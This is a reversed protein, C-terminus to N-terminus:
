ENSLRLPPAALTRLCQDRFEFFARDAAQQATLTSAGYRLAQQVQADAALGTRELLGLVSKLRPDDKLRAEVEPQPKTADAQETHQWLIQWDNNPAQTVFQTKVSVQRLDGGPQVRTIRFARRNAAVTERIATRIAQDNDPKNAKATEGLLEQLQTQVQKQLLEGILTVVDPAKAQTDSRIVFEATGQFEVPTELAHEVLTMRAKWEREDQVRAPLREILPMPWSTATEGRAKLDRQLETLDRSEPKDLRETWAWALVKHAESSSPIVREVQAARLEFWVFESPPPDAKALREETRELEQKLFFLLQKQDADKRQEIEDRLRQRLQEDARQQEDVAARLQEDFLKPQATRLWESRVLLSVRGAADHGFLLGRLRTGSRLAVQDVASRAETPRNPKDAAVLENGVVFCCVWVGVCIASRFHATGSM